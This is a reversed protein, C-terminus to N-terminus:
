CRHRRWYHRGHKALRADKSIFAHASATARLGSHGVSTRYPTRLSGNVSADVASTGNSCATHKKTKADADHPANAWKCSEPVDCM